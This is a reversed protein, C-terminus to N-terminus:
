HLDSIETTTLTGTANGLSLYYSGAQGELTDADLGVGELATVLAALTVAGIDGGSLRGLVTGEALTTAVPTDDIIATIVTQADWLASTISGATVDDLHAWPSLQGM